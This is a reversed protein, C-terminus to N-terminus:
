VTLWVPWEKQLGLQQLIRDSHPFCSICRWTMGQQPPVQGSYPTTDGAEASHIITVSRRNGHSGLFMESCLRLRLPSYIFVKVLWYDLM